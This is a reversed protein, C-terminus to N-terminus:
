EFKWSRRAVADCEHVWICNRKENYIKTTQLAESPMTLLMLTHWSEPQFHCFSRKTTCCVSKWCDGSFTTSDIKPMVTAAPERKSPVRSHETHEIFEVNTFVGGSAFTRWWWRLLLCLKARAVKQCYVGTCLACWDGGILRKNSYISHADVLRRSFDPSFLSSASALFIMDMGPIKAWLSSSYSALLLLM